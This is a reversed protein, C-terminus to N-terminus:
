LDKFKIGNKHEKHIGNSYNNKNGNSLITGNKQHGNSLQEYDLSCMSGLNPRTTKSSPTNRYANKYFDWFLFWFLVAHFGIWWMFGRPYNCERFLLQFSHVFILIFQVMQFTTMYKKWWLYKNMRPGLASLGYYIYMVIHVFSNVFAFFTSHGGPTFKVGWWVSMPMVGHHIVHLTSVHTFKKRLVFFITDSFELFKSIYYWWSLHAMGIAEISNSYDVPQCKYNYKGFWGYFGLKLFIYVSILVMAFNYFAMLYRINYPERDKMLAPGLYKVLYVYSLCIGITPWPSQMLPWNAVRPDGHELTSNYLHKVGDIVIQAM